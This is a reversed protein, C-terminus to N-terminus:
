LYNELPTLSEIREIEIMARDEGDAIVIQGGDLDVSELVGSYVIGFAIVEVKKGKSDMLGRLLGDEEISFELDFGGAPKRRGRAKKKAM